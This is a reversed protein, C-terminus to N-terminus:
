SAPNAHCGDLAFNFIGTNVVEVNLKSPIPYGDTNLYYIEVNMKQASANEPRIDVILRSVLLGKDTADYSPQFTFNNGGTTVSFQQLILTDSLVETSDVDPQKWHLTTGASSHTIELGKSNPPVISGDVFPTWFQLFGQLSQDVAKHMQELLSAADAPATSDSPPKWDVISKGNLRAHLTIAVTKLMVVNPDNESVTSNKVSSEFLTRWDPHVACDFGTLGATKTSYYLKTARALLADDGTGAPAAQSQPAADRSGPSAPASSPTQAWAATSVILLLLIAATREPRRM